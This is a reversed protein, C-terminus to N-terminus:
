KIGKPSIIWTLLQEEKSSLDTINRVNNQGFKWDKPDAAISNNPMIEGGNLKVDIKARVDTFNHTFHIDKDTPQWKVGMEVRMSEFDIGTQGWSVRYKHGTVLPAAWSNNPKAFLKFDITGFNKKDKIYAKKGDEDLPSLISDDYRLIKLGM